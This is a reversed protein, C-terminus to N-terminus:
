AAVLAPHVCSALVGTLVFLSVAVFLAGESYREAKLRLSNLENRISMAMEKMM